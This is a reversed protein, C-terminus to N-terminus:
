LGGQDKDEAYPVLSEDTSGALWLLKKCTPCVVIIVPDFEPKREAQAFKAACLPCTRELKFTYEMAAIAGRTVGMIDGNFALANAAPHPDGRPAAVRSGSYSGIDHM